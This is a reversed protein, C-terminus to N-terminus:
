VCMVLTRPFPELRYGIQMGGSKGVSLSSSDMLRRRESQLNRMTWNAGNTEESCMRGGEDDINNVMGVSSERLGCCQLM